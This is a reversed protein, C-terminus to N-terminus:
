TIKNTPPKKKQTHNPKKINKPETYKSNPKKQQKKQKKKLYFLDFLSLKHAYILLCMEM